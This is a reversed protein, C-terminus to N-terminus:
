TRRQELWNQLMVSAAMEDIRKRQKRAKTGGARMSRAAAVTTLREDFTEVPVGLVSALQAVEALAAQAAPGTAGSLSLPLGVVVRAAGLEDVLAALAAHDTARESSREIVGHPSALVGGPDSVAVGIRREGLDLGIVRAGSAQEGATVRL